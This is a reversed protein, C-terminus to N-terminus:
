TFDARLLEASPLAVAVRLRVAAANAREILAAVRKDAPPRFQFGFIGDLCLEYSGRIDAAVGVRDGATHVLERWARAALPRLARSGFAFRVEARMRPFQELIAQAAILADGGNHGKGALVLVRGVAPFAGIEQFDRGVAAAIAGGARRM